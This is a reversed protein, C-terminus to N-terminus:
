FAWAIIRKFLGKSKPAQSQNYDRTLRVTNSNSHWRKDISSYSQKGIRHDEVGHPSFTWYNKSFKKEKVPKDLAEQIDTNLRIQTPEEVPKEKPYANRPIVEPVELFDYFDRILDNDTLAYEETDDRVYKSPLWRNDKLDNVLDETDLVISPSRAIKQSERYERYTNEKM